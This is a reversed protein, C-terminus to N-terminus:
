SSVDRALPHPVYAVLSLNPQSEPTMAVYSYEVKGLSPHRLRKRGENFATVDAESWWTRFESSKESLEAALRDFPETNNARTKAARLSSVYGHALTEWDEIITRYPQYLFLLRITNREHPELTGYDLFLETIAKNWALIDFRTNRVYAPISDMARIMMVLGDSVEESPNAYSPLHQALALLHRVEVHDLHLVKAVRQLTEISIQIDRGQEIWTYWSVSVGALAAVEERRLGPTRRVGRSLGISHPQLRARKDALFAGLARRQEPSPKAM